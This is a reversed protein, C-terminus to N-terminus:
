GYKVTHYDVISDHEHNEFGPGAVPVFWVSFIPLHLISGQLFLVPNAIKEEEMVKQRKVSIERGEVEGNEM